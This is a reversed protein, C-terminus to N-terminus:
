SPVLSLSRAITASTSHGAVLPALVVKGGSSEVFDGGVVEDVRYDAGKVLVDPRIAEIVRLPTDEDFVIVLDVDALAVLVTSRAEAEQVPRGSGKSRRVSADSNLGVVLRDCAGRAHKLLSIHGPHLLDFCGNTFGVKLGNRRWRGVRDLALELPLVKSREVTDRDFLARTLEYGGVVATGVKGVVIGAAENALVAGEVLSAGSALAASLVASVTDGAGTVDYVERATASLRHCATEEVLVMGDKGCTVLMADIQHMSMLKRAAGVIEEDTNLSVGAAAVLEHRNPKVLTAGRYASYDARKPDVIVVAGAQRLVGIIDQSMGDDFFGKAYDSLIVHHYRSAAIRIKELVEERASQQLPQRQEWDARLLQHAEAIFRTKETTRHQKDSLLHAQCRGIGAIMSALEQGALDAGVVSVFCSDCGLAELNRLVNAAGGLRREEREIQLIPVPAEPSIRGVRGWVYRDIMADGVCLIPANKMAEIFPSLDINAM